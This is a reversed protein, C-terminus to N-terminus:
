ELPKNREVFDFWMDDQAANAFINSYNDGFIYGTIFQDFPCIIEVDVEFRIQKSIRDLFVPEYLVQGIEYAKDKFISPVRFQNDLIEDTSWLVIDGFAGGNCIKLFDQHELVLFKKLEDPIEGIGEPIEGILVADSLIDLKARYHNVLEALKM